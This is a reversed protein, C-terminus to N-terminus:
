DQVFALMSSELMAIVVEGKEHNHVVSSTSGNEGNYFWAAPQQYIRHRIRLKYNDTPGIRTMVHRKMIRGKSWELLMTVEGDLKAFSWHGCTM